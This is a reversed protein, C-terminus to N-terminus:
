ANKRDGRSKEWLDAWSRAMEAPNEFNPHTVKAEETLKLHGERHAKFTDIVVKRVEAAKTTRSFMCLLLAQDENLHYVWAPRGPKGPNPNSADLSGFTRLEDLNPLILNQRIKRPNKM